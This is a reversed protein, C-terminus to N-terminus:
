LNSTTGDLFRRVDAIDYEVCGTVGRNGFFKSAGCDHGSYYLRISGDVLSPQAAPGGPRKLWWPNYVRLEEWSDCTGYDLLLDNTPTITDPSDGVAAYIKGQAAAFDHEEVITTAAYAMLYTGDVSIVSPASVSPGRVPNDDGQVALADDDATFLVKEPRIDDGLSGSGKWIFTTGTGDLGRGFYIPNGDEYAIDRLELQRVTSVRGFETPTDPSLVPGDPNKRYGSLPRDSTAHGYRRSGGQKGIGKYLLHYTETEPDYVFARATLKYSDFAGSEGLPVIDPTIEEWNVGDTSRLGVTRPWSGVAAYFTGDVRVVTPPYAQVNSVSTSDIVPNTSHKMPSLTNYGGPDNLLKLRPCGLVCRQPPVNRRVDEWSLTAIDEVSICGSLATLGATAGLAGLFRRRSTPM